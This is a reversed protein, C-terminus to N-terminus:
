LAELGRAVCVAEFHERASAYQGPEAFDAVLASLVAVIDGPPMDISPLHGAQAGAIMDLFGTTVDARCGYHTVSTGDSSLPVSYNGPGWGMLEGLRDAKDRLAAPIILVASIM